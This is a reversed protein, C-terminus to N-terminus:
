DDLMGVDLQALRGPDALVDVEVIKGDTTAGDSAAALTALDRVAYQHHNWEEDMVVHLCEIVAHATPPPYGREDNGRRPHALEDADVTSLYDRVRAMRAARVEAVDDFSPTAAADLGLEGQRAELFTPALGLPHYPHADGLVAWGFWADTVFVLHRMTEVLSWEGDVREHLAAAPLSGAREVTPRWLSEVVAWGERLGAADTARLLLREPHRRDLEAEVLPAIEVGNVKMGAILGSVDFDVLVADVIRAGSLDVDRFTAGSLDVRTFSAGRLEDAESFDATM